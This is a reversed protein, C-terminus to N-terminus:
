GTEYTGSQHKVLWSAARAFAYLLGIIIAPYLFVIMGYYMSIGYVQEVVFCIVYGLIVLGWITIVCARGMGRLVSEDTPNVDPHLEKGVM